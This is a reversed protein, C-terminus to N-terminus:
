PCWTYSFYIDHVNEHVSSTERLLSNLCFRFHPSNSLLSTLKTHFISLQITHPIVTGWNARIKLSQFKQFFEINSKSYFQLVKLYVVMKWYMVAFKSQLYDSADVVEVKVTKSWFAISLLCKGTKSFDLHQYLLIAFSLEEAANVSPNLLNKTCIYIECIGLFFQKFHLVTGFYILRVLINCEVILWLEFKQLDSIDMDLDRSHDSRLEIGHAAEFLTSWVLKLCCKWHWPVIAGWCPNTWNKHFGKLPQLFAHLPRHTSPLTYM